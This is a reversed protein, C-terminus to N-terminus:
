WGMLQRLYPLLATAAAQHGQANPHGLCGRPYAGVTEPLTFYSVNPIGLSQICAFAAQMYREYIQYQVPDLISYSQLPDPSSPQYASVMSAPLQLMVIKAQPQLEKM